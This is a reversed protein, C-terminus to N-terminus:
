NQSGLLCGMSPDHRSRSFEHSPSQDDDDDILATMENSRFAGSNDDAQSRFMWIEFARSTHMISQWLLEAQIRKSANFSMSGDNSRTLATPRILDANEESGCVLSIRAAPCIVANPYGFLRKRLHSM